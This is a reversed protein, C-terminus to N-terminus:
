RCKSSEVVRRPNRPKLWLVKASIDNM